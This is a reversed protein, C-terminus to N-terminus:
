EFLGLTILSHFRNPKIGLLIDRFYLIGSFHILHQNHPMYLILICNIFRLSFITKGKCIPSVIQVKFLYETTVAQRTLFHLNM